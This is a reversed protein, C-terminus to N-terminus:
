KRISRLWMLWPLAKRWLVATRPWHKAEHQNFYRVLSNRKHREVLARNGSSGGKRHWVSLDNCVMIQYGASRLRRCLDLDEFHLFYEEDFGRVVEFAARPLLMLAGSCAEVTQLSGLADAYLGRGRSGFGLAQKLMRAPSPDFRRANPDSRGADNHLSCSLVGLQAVQCARQYLARLTQSKLVCDPNLLLLWPQRAERAARNMGAGFGLNQESRLVRLRGDAVTASLANVSDDSSANDFVIVEGVLESELVNQVAILLDPGSNHAVVLASIAESM